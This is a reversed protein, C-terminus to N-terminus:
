VVKEKPTDFVNNHRYFMDSINSKKNIIPYPLPFIILKAARFLRVLYNIFVHFPCLFKEFGNLMINYAFKMHSQYGTM